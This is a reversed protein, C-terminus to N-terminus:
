NWRRYPNLYCVPKRLVTISLVLAFPILRQIPVYMRCMEMGKTKGVVLTIFHVFPLRFRLQCRWWTINKLLFTSRLVGQERRMMAVACETCIRRTQMERRLANEQSRDILECRETNNEEKSDAEVKVRECAFLSSPFAFERLVFTNTSGFLNYTTGDSAGGDVTITRCWNRRTVKRM